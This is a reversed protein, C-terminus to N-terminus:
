QHGSNGWFRVNVPAGEIDAKHWFRVDAWPM